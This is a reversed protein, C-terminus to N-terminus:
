FFDPDHRHREIELRGEPTQSLIPHDLGEYNHKDEFWYWGAADPTKGQRASQLEAWFWHPNVPDAPDFQGRPTGNAYLSSHQFRDPSSMRARLLERATKPLEGAETANMRDVGEAVLRSEEHASRFSMMVRGDFMTFQPDVQPMKMNPSGDIFEKPTYVLFDRWLQKLLKYTEAVNWINWKPVMTDPRNMWIDKKNIIDITNDNVMCIDKGSRVPDMVYKYKAKSEHRPRQHPYPQYLDRTQM